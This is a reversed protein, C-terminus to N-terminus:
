FWSGGGGVSPDRKDRHKKISMVDSRMLDGGGVSRAQSDLPPSLLTSWDSQAFAFAFTATPKQHRNKNDSCLIACKASQLKETDMLSHIGSWRTQFDEQTCANNSHEHSKQHKDHTQALTLKANAM